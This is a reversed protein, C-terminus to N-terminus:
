GNLASQEEESSPTWTIKQSTFKDVLGYKLIVKKALAYNAGATKLGLSRLAASISHCALLAHYMKNEAQECKIKQKNPRTKSEKELNQSNRIRRGLAWGSPVHDDKLIKRSEVGNTIWKTGFQSNGKGSQHEKMYESFRRRLWGYLKRDRRGKHGRTMKGVALILSPTEPYIKVLLVHAVFHEEPTLAVLNSPDDAGGLCKPIIHHKEVYGEPIRTLGKNILQDYIKKYDM